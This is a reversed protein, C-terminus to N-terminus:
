FPSIEVGDLWSCIFPTSPSRLVANFGDEIRLIQNLPVIKDIAEAAGVRRGADNGAAKVPLSAEASPQRSGRERAMNLSGIRM